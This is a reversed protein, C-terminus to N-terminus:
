QSSAPSAAGQETHGGNANGRARPSAGGEAVPVPRAVNDAGIEWNVEGWVRQRDDIQWSKNGLFEDLEKRMMPSQLALLREWIEPWSARVVPALDHLMPWRSMAVPTFALALGAAQESRIHAPLMLVDRVLRDDSLGDADRSIGAERENADLRGLAELARIKVSPDSARALGSLIAKAERSDVAGDPGGKCEASAIALLTTVVRTKAVRYATQRIAEGGGEGYGSRRAAETNSCNQFKACAFKMQREDAGVSKAAEMWWDRGMPNWDFDDM